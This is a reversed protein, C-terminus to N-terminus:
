RGRARELNARFNSNDPQTDLARRFAEVGELQRGESILAIGLGTWADGDRPQVRLYERYHPTAEAFAQQAAYLNALLAHVDADAPSGTILARLEAAAEGPRGAADLARATMVRAPRVAAVRPEATVFRTLAAAAEDFRGAAFLERGLYYLAPPYGASAEQLHTMAETRRGAAALEVGVLYHANPSPWRELVTQAITLASVYERNRAVTRLTLASAMVVLVIAATRRPLAPWRKMAAGFAVVALAILAASALYMRREAGVETAIPIFSSTPGLTLFVAAGLTGARPWRVLAVITLAFLLAILTLHPWVDILTVARPWGYYLVLSQPWISLWFYRTLMEPQNLFYEIWSVHASAFGADFSQGTLAVLTGLPVWTALLWAYLRARAQFAAAFSGFGFARDFLVVMLPATAITEKCGVGALVAVVILMTWRPSAGPALARAAAYIALLYCAAMLSESRQTVYSVVESNLPHVAWLLSVSFAVNVPRWPLLAAQAPLELTRRVIGFLLLACLLHLALNVVRLATTSPGALAYNLAFSLSVLPRGALPGDAQPVLVARWDSLNRIQPNNAVAAFDDFVLPASLSNAYAAAAVLVVLAAKFRYEAM